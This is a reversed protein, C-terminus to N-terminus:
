KEDCRRKRQQQQYKCKGPALEATSCRNYVTEFLLNCAVITAAPGRKINRGELVNAAHVGGTTNYSVQLALRQVKFTIMVIGSSSNNSRKQVSDVHSLPPQLGWARDYIPPSSGAVARVKSSSQQQQQQRQQQQQQQERVPKCAWSRINRRKLTGTTVVECAVLPLRQPWGVVECHWVTLFVAQKIQMSSRFNSRPLNQQENYFIPAAAAVECHWITLLQLVANCRLGSSPKLLLFPVQPQTLRCDPTTGKLLLNLQHKQALCPTM